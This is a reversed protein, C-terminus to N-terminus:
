RELSDFNAGIRHNYSRKEVEYEENKTFDGSKCAKELGNKSGINKKAKRMSKEVEEDCGQGFQKCRGLYKAYNSEMVRYEVGRRISYNKVALVAVEKDVFTQGIQFEAQNNSGQSGQTGSSPEGQVQGPGLLVDLNLTSLHPPYQHTGSSSAGGQQNPVPGSDDDSHGDIFPPEDDSDDARLAKDVGLDPVRQVHLACLAQPAGTGTDGLNAVLDGAGAENYIGFTSSAFLQAEPEAQIARRSPGAVNASHQGPASGGSSALPVLMEVFLKTTRVEPFQSRCHFLVQLDEDAQIAFSGYM